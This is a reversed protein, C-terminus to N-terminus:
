GNRTRELDTNGSLLVNGEATSRIEELEPKYLATVAQNFEKSNYDGEGVQNYLKNSTRTKAVERTLDNWASEICRKGFEELLTRLEEMDEPDKMKAQLDALLYSDYIKRIKM